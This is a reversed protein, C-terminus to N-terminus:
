TSPRTPCSGSSCSSCSCAKRATRSLLISSCGPSTSLCMCTLWGPRRQPSLSAAAGPCGAMPAQSRLVGQMNGQRTTGDRGTRRHSRRAQRSCSCATAIRWGASRVCRPTTRRLSAPSSATANLKPTSSTLAHLAWHRGAKCPREEAKVSAKGHRRRRRRGESREASRGGQAGACGARRTGKPQRVGCACCREEPRAAVESSTSGQSCATRVLAGGSSVEIPTGSM